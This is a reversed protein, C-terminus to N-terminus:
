DLPEPAPLDLLYGDRVRRANAGPLAYWGWKDDTFAPEIGLMDYLDAVTATQYKQVCDFLREIVEEAEARTELIIERFDHASRARRSMEVRHRDHSEPVRAASVMPGPGFKNYAVYAPENPHRPM